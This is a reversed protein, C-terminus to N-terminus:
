YYCCSPTPPALPSHACHLMPQDLQSLHQVIYKSSISLWAIRELSVCVCACLARKQTILEPAPDCLTYRVGELVCNLILDVPNIRKAKEQPLLSSHEKM